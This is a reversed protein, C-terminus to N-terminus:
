VGKHFLVWYALLAAGGWLLYPPIGPGPSTTTPASVPPTQSVIAVPMMTIPPTDSSIGAPPSMDAGMGMFSSRPIKRMLYTM